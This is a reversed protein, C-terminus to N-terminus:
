AWPSPSSPSSFRCATASPKGTRAGSPRPPSASSLWLRRWVPAAGPPPPPRRPPPAGGPGGGGGGTGLGRGLGRLRRHLRHHPPPGLAHVPIVVHRPGLRPRRPGHGPHRRGRAALRRRRGRRERRRVPGDRRRRRARRPPPPARLAARPPAPGRARRSSPLRRSRPPLRVLAGGRSRPAPRWRFVRAAGGVRARAFRRVGDSLPAPPLPSPSPAAVAVPRGILQRPRVVDRRTDVVDAVQSNEVPAIETV